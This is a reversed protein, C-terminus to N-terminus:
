NPFCKLGCLNSCIPGTLGLVIALNYNERAKEQKVKKGLIKCDVDFRGDDPFNIAKVAQNVQKEKM